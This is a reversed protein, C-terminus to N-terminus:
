YKHYILQFSTSNKFTNVWFILSTERDTIGIVMITRNSLKVIAGSSVGIIIRKRIPANKIIIPNDINKNPMSMPIVGKPFEIPDEM